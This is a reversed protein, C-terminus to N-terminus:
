PVVSGEITSVNADGGCFVRGTSSTCRCVLRLGLTQWLDQRKVSKTGRATLVMHGAPKNQICHMAALRVQALLSFQHITTFLEALKRCRKAFLDMRGFVTAENAEFRASSEGKAM